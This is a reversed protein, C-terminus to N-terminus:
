ANLEKLRAQVAQGFLVQGHPMPVGRHEAVVEYYIAELQSDSLNVWPRQPVLRVLNGIDIHWQPPNPCLGLSMPKTTDMWWQVGDKFRDDETM